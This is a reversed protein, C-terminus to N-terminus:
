KLDYSSNFKSLDIVEVIKYELKSMIKTFRKEMKELKQIKIRIDNQYQKEKTIDRYSKIVKLFM